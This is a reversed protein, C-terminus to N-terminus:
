FIFEVNFFVFFFVQEQLTRALALDADVQSLNTFPVRTSSQREEQKSESNLNDNDNVNPNPVQEKQEASM